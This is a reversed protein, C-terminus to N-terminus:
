RGGVPSPQAEDRNPTDEDVVEGEQTNELQARAEAEAAAQEEPTPPLQVTDLAAGTLEVLYSPDAGPALAQRLLVIKTLEDDDPMDDVEFGLYRAYAERSLIGDKFGTEANKSLDPKATLEGTDYWAIIDGGEPGKLASRGGKSALMPRLYTETAGDAILEVPPIIHMTIEDEKVEWTGWHNVDGMGTIRERSMNMTTALREVASKRAEIIKTDFISGFTVHQIMKIYEGKVRLPMPIAAGASGPNKINRSAISIWEALFPDPADKFEPNVPFTIEDPFFIMGNMALRSVLTAIIHRDYLSIERLIPIASKSSSTAQWGFRPHKQRIESVLTNEGLPAWQNPGVLYEFRGRPPTSGGVARRMMNGIRTAGMRARIEDGSAVFIDREIVPQDGRNVLFAKGVLPIHLGLAGMDEPTIRAMIDAADGEEIPKPENIGPIREAAILRVRSIAQSLWWHAFGFEGVTELYDWLEDQWTAYQFLQPTYRSGPDMFQSAATLVQAPDSIDLGGYPDRHRVSVVTTRRRDAM